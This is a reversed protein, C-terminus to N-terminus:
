AQRIEKLYVIAPQTNLEELVRYGRGRNKQRLENVRSTTDNLNGFVIAQAPCSQQCATTIEGDLVKRGQQKANNKAEVIRQVCFTCKEMVGKTRVTVDPNLQWNLPEPWEYDFWNFRRVKYPCNNSCYRTGVCRNYVQANLGEPTHYSAYVPCVPECPANDCQQCLMPLFEANPSYPVSPDEPPDDFYREIRLWSLERGLEVQNKGVVPINNEAYCAVVCASCGTCKDLDITMGWRYDAHEHPAYLSPSGERGHVAGGEKSEEKLQHTQRLLEEVGIVQVINRGHLYDSGAVQALSIKKGRNVIRAAIQGWKMGGSAALPLPPLISFVNAGVGTAYRGYHTHGQGIPIAVTGRKVGAYVYAPLEVTGQQTTVQIIHGREIGLERADDPHIEVWNSWTIQTIPDPLEQLWPKNAGRGDYHALSPYLQLSFTNNGLTPPKLDRVMLALAEPSAVWRVPRERPPLEEFAGGNALAEMWWQDFDSGPSLRRHVGRWREKLYEFFPQEKQSL